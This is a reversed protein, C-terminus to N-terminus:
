DTAYAPAYLSIDAILNISNFWIVGIFYSKLLTWHRDLTNKPNGM